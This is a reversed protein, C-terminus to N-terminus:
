QFKRGIIVKFIALNSNPTLDYGIGSNLEWNKGFELDACLFLLHQQTSFLNKFPGFSGYYELCPVFAETIEYSMKFNPSFLFGTKAEEGTFYKEIVPNFALYLKGFKKDIIPRIETGWNYTSDEREFGIETSISLGVPLHYSEPFSIKPRINSGDYRMTSGNVSSFLYIGMEMWSTFGHTIEITENFRKNMPFEGKGSPYFAFNSHSETETTKAPVIESGYVQIEYESQAKAVFSFLLSFMCFASIKFIPYKSIFSM